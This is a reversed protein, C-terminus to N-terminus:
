MLNQCKADNLFKQWSNETIAQKTSKNNVTKFYLLYKEVNDSKIHPLATSRRNM